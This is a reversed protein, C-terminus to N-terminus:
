QIVVHKKIYEFLTWISFAALEAACRVINCQFEPTMVQVVGQEKATEGDREIQSLAAKVNEEDLHRVGVDALHTLGMRFLVLGYKNEVAQIEKMKEENDKPYKSIFEYISRCDGAGFNMDDPDIDLFGDDGLEIEDRTVLSGWHNVMIRLGIQVADGQCDDDHRVEYLYCGNPISDRDIRLPTFLAAKDLITVEEFDVEMANYKAM